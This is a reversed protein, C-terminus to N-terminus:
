QITIKEAELIREYIKRRTKVTGRNIGRSKRQKDEILTYAKKLRKFQAKSIRSKVSRKNKDTVKKDKLKVIKYGKRKLKGNKKVLIKEKVPQGHDLVAYITLTDGIEQATSWQCLGVILFLLIIAKM